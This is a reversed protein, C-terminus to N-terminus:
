DHHYKGGALIDACRYIQEIIFLHAFQHPLTLTSLRLLYNAEAKTASDHGFADGIAFGVEGYRMTWQQLKHALAESRCAEGREDLLVRFGVSSPWLSTGTKATKEIITMKGYRRFRKEYEARLTLIDKDKIKGNQIICIRM